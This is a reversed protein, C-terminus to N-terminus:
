ATNVNSAKCRLVGCCNVFHVGSFACIDVSGLEKANRAASSADPAFGDAGIKDAFEQTIPAGGIMVKLQDRFAAEKLAEITAGMSPM